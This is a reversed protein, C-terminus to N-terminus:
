MEPVDSTELRGGAIGEIKKMLAGFLPRCERAIMGLIDALEWVWLKFGDIELEGGDWYPADADSDDLWEEWTVKVKKKDFTEFEVDHSSVFDVM